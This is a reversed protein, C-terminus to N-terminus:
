KLIEFFVIFIGWFDVFILYVFFMIVRELLSVYCLDVFEEVNVIYSVKLLGIIM